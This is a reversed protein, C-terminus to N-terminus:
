WTRRFSKARSCFCSARGRVIHREARLEVVLEGPPVDYSPSPLPSRGNILLEASRPDVDISVHANATVRSSAWFAGVVLLAAIATAAWLLVSQRSFRMHRLRAGLEAVSGAAAVSIRTAEATGAGGAVGLMKTPEVGGALMQTPEMGPVVQTADGLQVSDTSLINTMADSTFVGPM